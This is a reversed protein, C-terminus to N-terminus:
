SLVSAACFLKDRYCDRHPDTASYAKTVFDYFKTVSDSFLNQPKYPIYASFNQLSEPRFAVIAVSITNPLLVMIGRTSSDCACRLVISVLYSLLLHYGKKACLATNTSRFSIM